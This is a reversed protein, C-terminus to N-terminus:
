LEPTLITKGPLQGAAAQDHVAPLDALPRRQAVDIKLDGADVRAVLGALQAADSRVFVQATRVGRGPDGPAPTTTSVFTGGDAALDALAATEEPSTRVLNLVVDFRQGAVATALPAATYDVVRDAGYSRVRDASRASATATVIAGAQRALQVAFGGVAGGAGNILIAQGAQLAAHEFLSQWATLGASPLAAADALEVARPAAALAEAPAAAYQAAAGPGAMPLFAVVADGASWGSVGAGAETVVGAVDFNPIHPLAVPFVQQLLGARITVDVPNFAAGAVKVVVQGTSAAPRDTDEYALVGSGGYSHYRVAKM